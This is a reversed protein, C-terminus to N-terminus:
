KAIFRYIYIYIYIHTHTHTHERKLYKISEKKM